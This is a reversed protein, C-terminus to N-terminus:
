KSNTKGEKKKSPTTVSHQNSSFFPSHTVQDANSYLPQMAFRHVGGLRHQQTRTKILFICNHNPLGSQCMGLGETAAENPLSTFGPSYSILKRIKLRESIVSLSTDQAPNAFQHTNRQRRKCTSKRVRGHWQLGGLKIPHTLTLVGSMPDNDEQLLKLRPM